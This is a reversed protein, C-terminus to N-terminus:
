TRVFGAPQRLPPSASRTRAGVGAVVLSEEAHELALIHTELERIRRTRDVHSIGGVVADAATTVARVLQDRFLWALLRGASGSPAALATNAGGYLQQDALVMQVKGDAFDFQPQGNAAMRDIEATLHAKIEEATLPAARVQTLEGQAQVLERRVRKVADAITEGANPQAPAGSFPRCGLLAGPLNDGALARYRLQAIVQEANGRIGNRRMREENLKQLEGQMEAIETTFAELKDGEVTPNLRSRRRQLDYLASELEQERAMATKVLAGSDQALAVLAQYKKRAVSPLSMLLGDVRGEQTNPNPNLPPM